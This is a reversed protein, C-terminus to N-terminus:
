RILALSPESPRSVKDPQSKRWSTIVLKAQRVLVKAKQFIGVIFIDAAGHLPSANATVPTFTCVKYNPM